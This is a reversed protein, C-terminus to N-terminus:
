DDNDVSFRAYANGTGRKALADLKSAKVHGDLYLVNVTELHRESVVGGYNTTDDWGRRPASNAPNFALAEDFCIRYKGTYANNTNLATESVWITRAADNFSSLNKEVPSGGGAGYYANIGYSGFFQSTSSGLQKAPIYEPTFDQGGFAASVDSPCSFLQTSKVYPQVADMWKYRGIGVGPPDSESANNLGSDPYHDAVTKEDYDQVYQLLGLGIQKLNSQCSSRRANERARAFVPFLIAALIAIIAIVVLLEILTFASRGNKISKPTANSSTHKM